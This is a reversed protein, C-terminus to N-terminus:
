KALIEVVVKGDMVRPMPLGLLALATAATDYVRVGRTIILGPRVRPGVCIWPITSNEPTNDLHAIGSGGHASTVILVTNEWRGSKKIVDVIAGVASDAKEVAKLYPASMWGNFHGVEDVEGIQVFTFAFKKESWQESFIKVIGETTTDCTAKGPENAYLFDVSAPRVLYHFKDKGFFMATTRDGEKAISMVTPSALCGAKYEDHLVKHHPCDLGTLMSAHSPLTTSPQVTRAKPCYAGAKILALMQSAPAKPIADPRLGDISIVVVHEEIARREQSRASLPALLFALVMLVFGHRHM